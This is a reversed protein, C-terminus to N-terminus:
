HSLLQIKDLKALKPVIHYTFARIPPKNNLTLLYAPFSFSIPFWNIKARPSRILSAIPCSILLHLPERVGGRYAEELDDHEGVLFNFSHVESGREYDDDSIVPWTLSMEVKEDSLANQLLFQADREPPDSQTSHPATERGIWVNM